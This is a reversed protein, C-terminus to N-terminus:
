MKELHKLGKEYARLAKQADKYTCISVIATIILYLVIFAVYSVVVKVILEGFDLTLMREMLAELNYAAVLAGVLAFSITGLILSALLQKGVYDGQFYEGAILMKKGKKEEYVTLKTMLRVKNENIM